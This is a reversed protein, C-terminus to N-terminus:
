ETGRSTMFLSPSGNETRVMNSGGTCPRRMTWGIHAAKEMMHATSDSNMERLRVHDAVANDTAKEFAIKAVIPNAASM